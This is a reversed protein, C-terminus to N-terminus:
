WDETSQPAERLNWQSQYEESLGSYGPSRQCNRHGTSEESLESDETAHPEEPLRSQDSSRVAAAIVAIVIVTASAKRAILIVQDPSRECDRQGPSRQCDETVRPEM